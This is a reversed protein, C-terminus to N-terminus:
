RIHCCVQLLTRAELHECFVGVFNEIRDLEDRLDRLCQRLNELISNAKSFTDSKLKFAKIDDIAMAFVVCIGTFDKENNLLLEADEFTLNNLEIAQLAEHIDNALKELCPHIFKELSSCDEVVNYIELVGQWFLTGDYKIAELIESFLSGGRIRNPVAETVADIVENTMEWLAQVINVSTPMCLDGQRVWIAQTVDWARKWHAFGTRTQWIERCIKDKMIQKICELLAENDISKICHSVQLLTYNKLQDRCYVMTSDRISKAVTSETDLGLMTEMLQDVVQLVADIEGTRRLKERLWNNCLGTLQYIEMDNLFAMLTGPLMATFIKSTLIQPWLNRWQRTSSNRIEQDFELLRGPFVKIDVALNVYATQSQEPWKHASCVGALLIHRIALVVAEHSTTNSATTSVTGMNESSGQAYGNEDLLLPERTGEWLEWLEQIMDTENGRAFLSKIKQCIGDKLGWKQQYLSEFQKHCLLFCLSRLDPAAFLILHLAMRGVSDRKNFKNSDGEFISYFTQHTLTFEVAAIYENGVVPFNLASVNPVYPRLPGYNTVGSKYRAQWGPQLVESLFDLGKCAALLGPIQYMWEFSCSSSEKVLYSVTSYRNGRIALLAWRPFAEISENSLVLFSNFCSLVACFVKRDQADRTVMLRQDKLTQIWYCSTIVMFLRSFQKSPGEEWQNLTTIIDALGKLLDDANHFMNDNLASQVSVDNMINMFASISEHFMKESSSRVTLYRLFSILQSEIALGIKANKKQPFLFNHPADQLEVTKEWVKSKGTVSSVLKSVLGSGHPLFVEIATKQELMRLTPTMWHQEHLGQVMEFVPDDKNTDGPLANQIFVYVPSQVTKSLLVHIITEFSIMDVDTEFGTHSGQGGTLPSLPLNSSGSRAGDEEPAADPENHASLVATTDEPTESEDVQMRDVNNSGEAQDMTFRGTFLVSTNYSTHM